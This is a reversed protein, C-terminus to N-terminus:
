NKETYAVMALCSWRADKTRSDKSEQACDCKKEVKELRNMQELFGVKGVTAKSLAAECADARTSASASATSIKAATGGDAYSALPVLFVAAALSFLIRKMTDGEFFQNM